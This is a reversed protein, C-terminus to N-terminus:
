SRRVVPMLTQDFLDRERWNPNRGDNRLLFKCSPCGCLHTIEIMRRLAHDSDYCKPCFPGCKSDGDVIWYFNNEFSVKERLELQERLQRNEEKLNRNEDYLEFVEAQLSVLQQYLPMNQVDQALKTVDKITDIVGM